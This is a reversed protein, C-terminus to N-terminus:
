RDEVMRYFIVGRLGPALEDRKRGKEPMTALDECATTLQTILDLAIDPRSM